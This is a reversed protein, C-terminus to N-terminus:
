LSGQRVACLRGTRCCCLTLNQFPATGHPRRRACHRLHPRRLGRLLRGGARHGVELAAVAAEGAPGAEEAVAEDGDGASDSFSQCIEALRWSVQGTASNCPRWQLKVPLGLKRLWRRTGTVQLTACMQAFRLLHGLCSDLEHIWPRWHLELPLSLKRLWQKIGTVQHLSSMHSAAPAFPVHMRREARSVTCWLSRCLGGTKELLISDRHCEDSVYLIQPILHCSVPVIADVDGSFVLISLDYDLLAKYKPLMSTLLDTRCCPM